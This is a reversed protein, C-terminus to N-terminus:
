IWYRCLCHILNMILRRTLIPALATQLVLSWCVDESDTGWWRPPLRSHHSLPSQPSIPSIPSFPSLRRLPILPSSLSLHDSFGLNFQRSIVQHSPILHTRTGPAVTTRVVLILHTRTSSSSINNQKKYTRLVTHNKMLFGKGVWVHAEEDTSSSYKM